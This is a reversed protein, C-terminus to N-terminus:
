PSTADDRDRSSPILALWDELAGPPAVGTLSDRLTVAGLHDHQPHGGRDALRVAIRVADNLSPGGHVPQVTPALHHSAVADVTMAPLGWLSLLYGGITPHSVGLTAREAQHLPIRERRVLDIATNLREPARSALVLVGIDHLLGASAAARQAKHGCVLASAISAVARSHESFVDAAFGGPHRVPTFTSQAGSTTALSRLLDLGILSIARQLDTIDHARSFFGSNVLQLVKAALAVDGEVLGALETGSVEDDDIARLLRHVASPPSPLGGIDHLARRLGPDALHSHVACARDLMDKLESAGCPKALTIHAVPMMRLVAEPDAHGSLVVRVAEPHRERVVGLFEAGGMGPMRMDSVVVDHPEAALMALADDGSTAFAPRVDSRRSRLTDRLGDLVDQDDDVFLVSPITM